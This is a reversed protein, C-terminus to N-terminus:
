PRILPRRRPPCFSVLPCGRRRLKGFLALVPVPFRLWRVAAQLVPRTDAAGREANQGRGPGCGRYDPALVPLAPLLVLPSPSVRGPPVPLWSVALCFASRSPSSDLRLPVVGSAPRRVGSSVVPSASVAARRCCGGGPPCVRVM